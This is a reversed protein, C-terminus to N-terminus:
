YMGRQGHRSHHAHHLLHHGLGLLRTVYSYGRPLRYFGVWSRYTCFTAHFYLFFLRCCCPQYVLVFLLLTLNVDSDNLFVHSLRTNIIVLMSVDYCLICLPYAMVFYVCHIRWLLTYVSSVGYRLIGLPYAM